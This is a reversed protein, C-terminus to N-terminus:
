RAGLVPPRQDLLVALSGARRARRWAAAPPRPGADDDRLHRPVLRGGRPHTGRHLREGPPDLAAHALTLARRARADLGGALAPRPGPGGARHRHAPAREARGGSAAARDGPSRPAARPAARARPAGLGLHFLRAAADRGRRAVAGRAPVDVFVAGRAS